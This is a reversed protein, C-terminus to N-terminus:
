RLEVVGRSPRKQGLSLAHASRSSATPSVAGTASPTLVVQFSISEDGPGTNEIFLTYTGAAASNVTIREPKATTSVSIALVTCQGAAAQEFSCDGQVIAVDLDNTAYTWDVTAQLSGARTTTFPLRGAVEAELTDGGQVVV